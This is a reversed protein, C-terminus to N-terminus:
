VPNILVFFQEMSIDKMVFNSKVYSLLRAQNDANM